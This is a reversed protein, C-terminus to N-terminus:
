NGAGSQLLKILLVEMAIAPRGSSKIGLDAEHLNRFIECFKEEDFSPIYRLLARYTKDRMKLPRKGKNRWLTYFQKYHWNLTGLIVTAHLANGSLAGRLIRFAKTKQGSILSDILDFSTYKRMLSTTAAIDKGSVATNGSLALKEIEMLLLGVDNGVFEILCDVAEETLKIGKRSAVQRLWAPIEWEKINLSFVKWDAKWSKKPAKQSLVVTCTTEAPDNIYPMMSKVAPAPFQHFDKLVVLRRQTMFPLTSLADIIEQTKSAADCVNYNFDASNEDVVVEVIRSLADELFCSDESWLYYLSGPLGKEIEKLLLKSLM